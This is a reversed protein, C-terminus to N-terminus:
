DFDMIGLGFLNIMVHGAKLVTLNIHLHKFPISFIRYLVSGNSSQLIYKINIFDLSRELDNM